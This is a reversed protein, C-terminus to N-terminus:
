YIGKDRQVVATQGATAVVIGNHDPILHSANFDLQSYYTLINHLRGEMAFGATGKVLSSASLPCLPATRHRRSDHSPDPRMALPDLSMVMM